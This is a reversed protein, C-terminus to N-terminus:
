YTPVSPDIERSWATIGGQLNYVRDFGNQVLFNAVQTSRGGARWVVLISKTKDVDQQRLPITAM